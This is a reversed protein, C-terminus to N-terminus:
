LAKGKEKEKVLTSLNMEFMKEINILNKEDSIKNITNFSENYLGKVDEYSFDNNFKNYYTEELSTDYKEIKSENYNILDTIILGFSNFSFMKEISPYLIDVSNLEERNNGLSADISHLMVIKTLIDKQKNAYNVLEDKYSKEM